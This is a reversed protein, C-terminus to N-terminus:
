AGVAKGRPFSDRTGVPYSAPRAESGNQVSHHLSFNGAGAPFRVMSGLDDLGYCRKLVNMMFCTVYVRSYCHTYLENVETIQKYFLVLASQLCGTRLEPRIKVGYVENIAGTV